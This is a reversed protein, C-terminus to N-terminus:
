HWQMGNAGYYWYHQRLANIQVPYTGLHTIGRREGGCIWVVCNRTWAPCMAFMVSGQSLM